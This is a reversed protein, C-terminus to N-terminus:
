FALRPSGVRGQEEDAVDLHAGIVRTESFKNSSDVLADTREDDIDAVMVQAGQEALGLCISSGFYGAGGAVLAVKGKLGFM